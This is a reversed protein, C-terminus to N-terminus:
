SIIKLIKSYYNAILLAKDQVNIIRRAQIPNNGKENFYQSLKVGTFYGKNMGVVLVKTAIETDLALEPFNLLDIKLVKSFLEYNEYWTLQVFGRGYYIQNPKTYIIKSYKKNIGYPKNKGKGIEEIPLLKSEHWATALIYSIKNKSLKLENCYAIIKNANEFQIDNLKFATKLDM